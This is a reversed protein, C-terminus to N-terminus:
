GKDGEKEKRRQDRRERREERRKKRAEARKDKADTDKSLIQGIGKEEKKDSEVTAINIEQDLSPQIAHVFVNQLVQLIAYWANARPNEVRGEFPVKTALRDRPQNEFVEGITGVLGEWFKRLANDDRDEKGLVKLDKILPKVYGKFRGDKAAIETYLGLTGRTVDAKAYAMFFDNLKVLNTNNLEANLDFTPVDALPNIRMKLDVTGGYVNAKANITAPLLERASDYSNRLNLGIINASTLSVDVPPNSFEDIYQIDGNRVEFRNIKLPMFDDLLKRFQSSDQQVDDPEVKDKTFRLLPNVFIIEGVLSGRFLAPWEVSLDVLSAAFFPTEKQTASDVKNIYISDIQYAGRILALDIDNIRGYYGDMTALNNNAFHLVVYPLALRIAIIVAVAILSIRLFRKSFSKPRKRSMDGRKGLQGFTRFTHRSVNCPGM